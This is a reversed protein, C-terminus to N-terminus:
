TRYAELQQKHNRAIMRTREITGHSRPTYWIPIFIIEYIFCSTPTRSRARFRSFYSPFLNRERVPSFNFSFDIDREQRISVSKKAIYCKFIFDQVSAFSWAVDFHIFYIYINYKNLWRIATENSVKIQSIYRTSNLYVMTFLKSFKPFLKSFCVLFWHFYNKKLNKCKGVYAFWKIIRIDRSCRYYSM